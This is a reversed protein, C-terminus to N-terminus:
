LEALEKLFPSCSICPIGGERLSRLLDAGDRSVFGVGSLDLKLDKSGHAECMERLLEVWQEVLRGELKLTLCGGKGEIKTIRLM